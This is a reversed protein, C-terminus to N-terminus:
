EWGLVTLVVYLEPHKHAQLLRVIQAPTVTKVARFVPLAHTVIAHQASTGPVDHALIAHMGCPEHSLLRM